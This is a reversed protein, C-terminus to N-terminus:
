LMAEIYKTGLKKTKLLKNDSSINRSILELKARDVPSLKSFWDWCDDELPQFGCVKAQWYARKGARIIRPDNKNQRIHKRQPAFPEFDCDRQCFHATEDHKWLTNQYGGAVVVPRNRLHAPLLASGHGGSGQSKSQSEKTAGYVVEGYNAPRLRNKKGM